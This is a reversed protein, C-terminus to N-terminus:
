HFQSGPNNEGFGEQNRRVYRPTYGIMVVDPHVLGKSLRIREGGSGLSELAARQQGPVNVNAVQVSTSSKIHYQPVRSRVQRIHDSKSLARWESKTNNIAVGREIHEATAQNTASVVRSARRIVRIVQRVRRM